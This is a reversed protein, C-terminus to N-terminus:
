AQEAAFSRPSPPAADLSEGLSPKSCIGAAEAIRQAEQQKMSQWGAFIVKERAIEDLNRKIREEYQATVRELEAQIHANEASKAAWYEEFQQWQDSEYSNIAAQRMAADRLVDDVSINAAELAMLVSARKMEDSLGRLHDSALMDAVKGIGYGMRPTLIGAARYVDDMSLLAGQPRAAGNASASDPSAAAGPAAKAGRTSVELPRNSAAGGNPRGSSSVDAHADQKQRWPALDSWKNPMNKGEKQQGSQPSLPHSSHGRPADFNDNTALTDYTALYRPAAVGIAAAREILAPADRVPMVALNPIARTKAPADTAISASGNTEPPTEHISLEIPSPALPASFSPAIASPLSDVAEPASGSAPAADVPLTASAASDRPANRLPVSARPAAPMLLMFQNAPKDKHIGVIFDRGEMRCYRATGSFRERYSNVKMISGIGVPSKLRLCAGSTSTDELKAPSTHPTGFQDRWRFEVLVMTATRPEM